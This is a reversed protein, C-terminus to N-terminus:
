TSFKLTTIQEALASSNQTNNQAGYVLEWGLHNVSCTKFILEKDTLKIALFTKVSSLM